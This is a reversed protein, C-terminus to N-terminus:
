KLLIQLIETEFIKCQHHSNRLSIPLFIIRWIPTIKLSNQCNYALDKSFRWILWFFDIVLKEGQKVGCNEDNTYSIQFLSVKFVKLPPCLLTKQNKSHFTIKPAFFKKKKFFPIKQTFDTYFRRFHRQFPVVRLWFPGYFM